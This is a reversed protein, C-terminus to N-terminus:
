EEVPTASDVADAFLDSNLLSGIVWVDQDPRMFRGTGQPFEVPRNLQVRYTVADDYSGAPAAAARNTETRKSM